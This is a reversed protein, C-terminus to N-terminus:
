EGAVDELAFGEALKRATKVLGAVPDTPLPDLERLEAGLSKALAEAAAANRGPQIWIVRVGDARAKRALQEIDRPGPERGHEELAVQELGFAEAFRGFADHQVYFRRGEYANLVSRAQLAAASVRAAFITNNTTYVEARGPDKRALAEAVVAAYQKLADPDLWIHSDAHEHGPVVSNLGNVLVLEPGQIRATLSAEMESGTSFLLGAHTLSASEMPTLSLTHPDQGTRVVSGVAWHGGAIHEVVAALPPVSAYATPLGDAPSESCSCLALLPLLLYCKM